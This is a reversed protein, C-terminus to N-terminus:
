HALLLTLCCELQHLNQAWVFSLSIPLCAPDCCAPTSCSVSADKVACAFALMSWNHCQEPSAGVLPPHHLLSQHKKDKKMCVSM